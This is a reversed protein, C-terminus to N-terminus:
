IRRSPEEDRETIERIEDITGQDVQQSLFQRAQEIFQDSRYMYFQVNAKAVIEEVLEPKPGVIKGEHRWWWDEKVDDTVIIIPSKEATAKDIVQYWLTL